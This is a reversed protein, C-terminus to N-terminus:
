MLQFFRLASAQVLSEASGDSKSSVAQRRRRTPLFLLGLFLVAAGSSVIMGVTLFRPRFRLEISHQGKELLIGTMGFDVKELRAPKGDVSASWGVDFPISFFLLQKKDMTITGRIRNQGHEVMSLTSAQRSTVDTQLEAAPYDDTLSVTKLRQLGRFHEQRSDDIVFAKLIARDKQATNLRSFDSAIVFSDYAFGLPLFNSNQYVYVDGFSTMLRYGMAELNNDTSKTLAYKVNGLIQLIPRTLGEAWRSAIENGSAVVNMGELFQIYDKQNFSHYSMSGYYRQIKADNYSPHIAPGSSYDKNLRYFGHDQTELYRVADVTYDNYGVRQSLEAATVVPRKNVTIGSIYAVEVCVLVIIATEWFRKYKGVLLGIAIQTYLILTIVVFFLLSRNVSAAVASAGLVLALLVLTTAFLVPRSIRRSQDAFSLGRLGFLLLALSIFFSFTRYYNGTFGWFLHRAYPFVLALLCLGGFLLFVKKRQGDLFVFFQPAFALAVLGCYLIPSEFYNEWGKFDSGTGQLDNSFLRLAISTYEPTTAFALSRKLFLKQFYSEGGGRPSLLLAQVNEFLFIGSLAIGLTALAGIRVLLRTYNRLDWSETELFRLTVYILIFLGYLYLNFPQYAGLLAFPLPLLWWVGRQYLKEFAFLLFACCMADYSFLYWQGALIMYGSFAFLLGGVICALRSLSLMRLYFFFFSGGIIIKFVEVYAMAFGVRDRGFLYFIPLFVDGLGLPFISQGMGQNFSWAPMGETRIYDIFHVFHPYFTNVSDSGIDKFLYAKKFFLFDRFVFLSIAALLGLLLFFHRPGIAGSFAHQEVVASSPSSKLDAKALQKKRKMQKERKAKARHSM